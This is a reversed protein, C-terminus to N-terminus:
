QILWLMVSSDDKVYVRNGAIIPHAYTRGDSVKYRALQRFEKNSPAFVTLEANPTLAFLVSGADVLSGYGGGGRGRGGRGFGRGRGQRGSSEAPQGGAEVGLPATWETEGTEAQICFLVDLNSLGYVLGDKLVPTNFQVSNDQNDWLEHGALSEGRRELQVAKTGRNSGTYIVNQGHVIPTAANYGRGSVAYPIEWALRGDAAAIGVIRQDTEAIIFEAGDLTLL